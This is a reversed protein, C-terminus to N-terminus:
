KYQNYSYWNKPLRSKLRDVKLLRRSLRTDMCNKLELKGADRRSLRGEKNKLKSSTHRGSRTEVRTEFPSTPLSKSHLDKFIMNEDQSATVGYLIEDSTSSDSLYERNGPIVVIDSLCDDQMSSSNKNLKNDQLYDQISYKKEVLGMLENKEKISMVTAKLNLPINEVSDALDEVSKYNFDYGFKTFLKQIFEVADAKTLAGLKLRPLKKMDNKQESTLFLFSFRNENEM